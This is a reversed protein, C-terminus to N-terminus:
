STLITCREYHYDWGFFEPITKIKKIVIYDCILVISGKDLFILVIYARM